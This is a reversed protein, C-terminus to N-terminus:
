ERVCEACLDWCEAPRSFVLFLGSGLLASIGKKEPCFVYTESSEGLSFLCFLLCDKEMQRSQQKRKQWFGRRSNGSGRWCFGRRSDKESFGAFFNASWFFKDALFSRGKSVSKETGHWLNGFNRRREEVDNWPTVGLRLFSVWALLKRLFGFFWSLFFGCCFM